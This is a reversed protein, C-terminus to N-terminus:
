AAARMLQDAISQVTADFNGLTVHNLAMDELTM